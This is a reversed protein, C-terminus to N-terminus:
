RNKGRRVPQNRITWKGKRPQRRLRHSESECAFSIFVVRHAHCLRVRSGTGADVGASPAPRILQPTTERVMLLLRKAVKAPVVM